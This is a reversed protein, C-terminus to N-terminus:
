NTFNAQHHVATNHMFTAAMQSIFKENESIKLLFSTLINLVYILLIGFTIFCALMVIRKPRARRTDMQGDAEHPDTGATVEDSTAMGDALSLVTKVFLSQMTHTHTHTHTH